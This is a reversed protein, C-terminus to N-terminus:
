FSVSVGAGAFLDASESTLGFGVRADITVQPAAEIITGAQLFHADEVSDVDRLFNFYEVYTRAAPTWTQHVGVAVGVETFSEQTVSDELFSLEVSADVRWLTDFDDFSLVALVSPDVRDSSLEEDGVPLSVEGLVALAPILGDSELAQLKIGLTLDTGGSITDAFGGVDIETASYGAWGIQVEAFSSVGARLLLEPVTLNTTEVGDDDDFTVTAGAELSFRGLPVTRASPTVSGRDPEFPSLIEDTAWGFISTGTPLESQGAAASCLAVAGVLGM